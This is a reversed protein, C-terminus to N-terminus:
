GARLVVRHGATVTARKPVTNGFGTVKVTDRYVIVTTTTCTDVVEWTTGQVTAAGRNGTIQYDGGTDHGWLRRERHRKLKRPLATLPGFRLYPAATFARAKRIAPRSGSTSLQSASCGALPGSLRADVLGSGTKAQGITFTGYKFDAQTTAGSKLEATVKAVGTVTQVTTGVPIIAYNRLDIRQGNPLKATVTGSERDLRLYEGYTPSPEAISQNVSSPQAPNPLVTATLTSTEDNTQVQDSDLTLTDTLTQVGAAPTLVVHVDLSSGAPITGVDCSLSAGKVAACGAPPSSITEGAPV